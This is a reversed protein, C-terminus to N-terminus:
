QVNRESINGARRNARADPSRRELFIGFLCAVIIVTEVGLLLLNRGMAGDLVIGVVRVAVVAGLIMAIFALGTAVRRKSVVCWSAFLACGVPFGGFAVRGIAMGQSSHLSIGQAIGFEVPRFVGRLGVLTLIVAPWLLILRSIWPAFRWFGGPRVAETLPSVGGGAASM